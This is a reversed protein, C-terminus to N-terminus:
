LAVSMFVDSMLTFGKAEELREEKSAIIGLEKDMPQWRKETM